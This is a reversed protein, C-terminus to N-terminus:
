CNNNNNNDDANFLVSRHIHSHTLVPRLPLLSARKYNIYRFVYRHTHITNFYATWLNTRHQKKKWNEIENRSGKRGGRKTVEKTFIVRVICTRVCVHWFLLLVFSFLVFGFVFCYMASPGGVCMYIAHVYM